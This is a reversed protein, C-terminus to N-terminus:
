EGFIPYSPFRPDDGKLKMISEVYKYGAGNSKAAVEDATAHKPFANFVDPSVEWYSARSTTKIHRPYTM